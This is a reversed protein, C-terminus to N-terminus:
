FLTLQIDTTKEKVKINSREYHVDLIKKFTNKSKLAANLQNSRVLSTYIAASNAQCNISTKPNFEIDTFADYELLSQSLKRNHPQNLATIYLWDYFFTTPNLEFKDEFLNFEKLEGSEKLRPERKASLSDGRLLDRYPGGNRFCKSSQFVMEITTFPSGNVVQNIYESKLLQESLGLTYLDITLNFASLKVGESIESKSSIELINNISKDQKASEHLSFVSKQKQIKAFGSHWKFDIIKTLAGASETKNPIFIPRKAM